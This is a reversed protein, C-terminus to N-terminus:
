YVDLGKALDWEESVTVGPEVEVMGDDESYNWDTTDQIYLGVYEDFHSYKFFPWLM